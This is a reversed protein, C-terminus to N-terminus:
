AEKADVILGSIPIPMWGNLCLTAESVEARINTGVVRRCSVAVNGTSISGSVQGIGTRSLDNSASSANLDKREQIKSALRIGLDTDVSSIHRVISHLDTPATRSPLGLPWKRSSVVDANIVCLSRPQPQPTEKLRKQSSQEVHSADTLPSTKQRSANM